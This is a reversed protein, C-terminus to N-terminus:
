FRMTRLFTLESFPHTRRKRGGREEPKRTGRDLIRVVVCRQRETSNKTFVVGARLAHLPVHLRATAIGDSIGDTIPGGDLDVKFRSHTVPADPSFLEICDELTFESM